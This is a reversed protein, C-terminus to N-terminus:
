VSKRRIRLARDLCPEQLAREVIDVMDTSSIANLLKFIPCLIKSLDNIVQDNLYNQLFKTTNILDTLAEVAPQDLNLASKDLNTAEKNVNSDM